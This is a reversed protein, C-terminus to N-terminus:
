HLVTCKIYVTDNTVFGLKRLTEHAAFRPFGSAVNAEAVPKRFSTNAPEPNIVDSLDNQSNENTLTLEVKNTFPWSLRDDYGGKMIVLYVSLHDGKGLGDGMPYARLSLKYGFLDTYFPLSDLTTYTGSKAERLRRSWDFLKWTFKGDVSKCDLKATSVELAKVVPRTGIVGSTWM